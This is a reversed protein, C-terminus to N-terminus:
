SLGGSPCDRRKAGAQSAQAGTYRAVWTSVYWTAAGTVAVLSLTHPLEYTYVKSFLRIQKRKTSEM